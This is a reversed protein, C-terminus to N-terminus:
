AILQGHETWLHEAALTPGFRQGPGSVPGSYHTRILTLIAEQEASAWARNSRRGLNGHRMGRAGERRFRRLLRKAHRYSVGLHPTASRLTSSGSVVQQLVAARQREKPNMAIREM